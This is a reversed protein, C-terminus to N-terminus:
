FNKDQKETPAPGVVGEDEEKTERAQPVFCPQPIDSMAPIMVWPLFDFLDTSNLSGDPGM